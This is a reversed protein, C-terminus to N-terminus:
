EEIFWLDVGGGVYVLSIVQGPLQNFPTGGPPSINGADPYTVIGSTGNIVKCVTGSAVGNAYWDGIPGGSPPSEIFLIYAPLPDGPNPDSANINLISGVVGGTRVNRTVELDYPLGASGVTVTNATGGIANTGIAVSNVETAAAGAGIAIGNVQTTSSNFGIAIGEDGSATVGANDGIAISRLLVADAATGIAVANTNEATAGTGIAINDTAGTGGTGIVAGTGMLINGGGTSLANGGSNQGILINNSGSTLDSAANAGLIVNNNGEDITPGTVSGIIINASGEDLGNGVTNGILVNGAGTDFGSGDNLGTGTGGLGSTYVNQRTDVTGFGNQLTVNGSGDATLVQGNTGAGPIRFPVTTQSFVIAPNGTANMDILMANGAGSKTLAIARGSGSQTIELFDTTTNLTADLTGTMRVAGAIEVDSTPVDTGIGIRGDNSGGAGALLYVDGGTDSAGGGGVLRVDGGTNGDGVGGTLVINGGASGDSIGATIEVAGGAGTSGGGNGAGGNIIVAGGDGSGAGIGGELLLNGANGTSPAFVTGAALRLNDANGTDQDEITITRDAGNALTIDSAFSANIILQDTVADGIIVDDNFFAVETVVLDGEVTTSTGSAALNVIGDANFTGTTTIDQGGFDPDIKIGAIAAATAVDADVITADAIEASTVADAEIQVVGTGALTVDGSVAVSSLTTGDGILLNGAPSADLPAATATNSGVLINGQALTSSIFISKNEQQPNGAGDTTLVQDATGGALKALTVQDDGIDASSVSGDAIETSGVENLIALAGLGLNTRATAINGLDTLNNGSTLYGADNNLLSVNETELMVTSQLKSGAIAATPSIDEDIIEDNTIDASTVVTLGVDDVDAVWNTGNYKLVEGAVATGPLEIENLPDDDGDNVEDVDAVWTTGNYKLVEGAVATGPLEIENLPDDDGDNVEDVDAVWTTGNYKLVEGAIATGPLEIENLPDNDGDNLNFLLSGDVGPLQSSANLQVIQNAGTGVDVDLTVAGTTGGGVLGVGANVEEIDGGAADIDVQLEELAAQVNISTLNGAATVTVEGADQDDTFTAGAPVATQVTLNNVRNANAALDVVDDDNTDYVTREMDGGADADIEAQLEELAAQVDTSVLTGGATVAVDAAEQDDTFVASAPVATAVTLGNVFDADLAADVVGDDNVDYVAKAMDGGADAEIEVQLEVLAAQVDTSILAGNPTVVVSSADQDDTFIAGVPVATEITLGNVLNANESLDVVDDNNTDYTSRAMDGNAGPLNTLASGDVAPLAGNGDLQVIQDAGIGVNVGLANAGTGDGTLTANSTVSTIGTSNGINLVIWGSQSWFYFREVEEDYVLLGEDAAGLTMDTRQMTTLSPILLGQDNNPSVLHLVANPNPNETNIGASFEQANISTAAFVFVILLLILRNSTSFYKELAFDM